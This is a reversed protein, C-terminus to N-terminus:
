KVLVGVLVVAVFIVGYVPWVSISGLASFTSRLRQKEDQQPRLEFLEASAEGHTRLGGVYDNYLTRYDAELSLYLADLLAFIVIPLCAAFVVTGRNSSIAVAVIAAVITVCWTKCAASNNAMRALNGQLLTLYTQVSPADVNYEHDCM